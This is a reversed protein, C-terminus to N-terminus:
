LAARQRLHGFPVTPDPELWTVIQGSPVAGAHAQVILSAAAGVDFGPQGALYRLAAVRADFWRAGLAYFVLTRAISRCEARWVPWDPLAIPPPPPVSRRRTM